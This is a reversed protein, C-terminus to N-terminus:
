PFLNKLVDKETYNHPLKCVPPKKDKPFIEKGKDPCSDGALHGSERCITHWTPNKSFHFKEEKLLKKDLLNKTVKGWLPAAITAGMGRGGMGFSAEDYGVWVALSLRPKAGVFWADIYDNTTGTKGIIDGIKGSSRVGSANASGKMLSVMVASTDSQIVRREFPVRLNFEDRDLSQYVTKGRSNIIKKILFPRKIVGDNAFASYASAMELPSIELSGLSISLDNRYRKQKEQQDPFFYKTFYKEMNGLGLQEGIQVAITNKSKVLAERVSIEGEYLQGFNDPSWLIAGKSNRFVIPADLMRTSPFIMGLDVAASYLIPKIASGTQRKMQIARNFQNKQKFEEGGHMFLIEGTSPDLGIIATQLEVQDAPIKGGEKVKIKRVRKKNKLDTLYEKVLEPLFEQAEKQITTEVTYGGEDYINPDVSKLIERVHETVYPAIDYRAAFVTSHAPQKLNDYFSAIKFDYESSIINRKILTKLIITFRKKSGKVNKFPSYVNPNSALSSLLVMEMTNLDKIEKDFYFKAANDFGFAGHGLYVNNMYAELIEDKSLKTELSLAVMAEKFKRIISKRRDNILIRSLQQTITSAGQIYRFSTINKYFARTLALFDIGNHNYFNRDEVNLIIEILKHPYENLKTSGTKKQYIESIMAGDKDLIVSPKNKGLEPLLEVLEEKAEKYKAVLPVGVFISVFFILFFFALLYKNRFFPPLYQWLDSDTKGIGTPPDKVVIKKIEFLPMEKAAKKEIAEKRSIEFEEFPDQPPPTPFDAKSEEFNNKPTEFVPPKEKVEPKEIIKVTSPTPSDEDQKQIKHFIQHKCKYCTIKYTGPKSPIRSLKSSSGCNPCLFNGNEIFGAVTTQVYWIDTSKKFRNM